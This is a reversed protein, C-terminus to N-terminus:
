STFHRIQTNEPQFKFISSGYKFDASEFKNLQLSQALIFIRLDVVLSAEKQYNPCCNRFVIAMNSILVRSNTKNFLKTALLFDKCKLGFISKRHPISNWFAITINLILERLNTVYLNKVWVIFKPISNRKELLGPHGNKRFIWTLPRNILYTRYM